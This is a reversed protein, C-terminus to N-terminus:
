SDKLSDAQLKNKSLLAFEAFNCKKIQNNLYETEAFFSNQNSIFILM